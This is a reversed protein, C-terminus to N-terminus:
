IQDCIHERHFLAAGDTTKYRQKVTKRMRGWETRYKIVFTNVTSFHQVTPQKIDSNWQKGWEEENLEIKLWLHYLLRMNSFHHVTQPKDCDLLTLKSSISTEGFQGHHSQTFYTKGREPRKVPQGDLESAYIAQTSLNFPFKGCSWRLLDM